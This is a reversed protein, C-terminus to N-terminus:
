ETLKIAGDFEDYYIHEGNRELTDPEVGELYSRM